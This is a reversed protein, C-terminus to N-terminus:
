SRGNKDFISRAKSPIFISYLVMAKVTDHYKTAYALALTSGWSGGVLLDWRELSLHKRLLEIDERVFHRHFYPILTIFRHVKRHHRSNPYLIIEVPIQIRGVFCGALIRDKQVFYLPQKGFNSVQLKGKMDLCHIPRDM